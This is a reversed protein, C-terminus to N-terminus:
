RRGVSAWYKRLKKPMDHVGCINKKSEIFNELARELFFNRALQEPSQHQEIKSVPCIWPTETFM